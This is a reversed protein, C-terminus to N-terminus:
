RAGLREHSRREEARLEGRVIAADWDSLESRIRGRRVIGARRLRKRVAAETVMLIRAIAVNSYRAALAALMATTPRLPGPDPATAAPTPSTPGAISEATPGAEADVGILAAMARVGAGGDYSPDHYRETMRATVHGTRARIVTEPVGAALIAPNATYRLSHICLGERDIGARALDGRFERDLNRGIPLGKGNSFLLDHGLGVTAAREM